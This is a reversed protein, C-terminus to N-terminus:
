YRIDFTQYNQVEGESVMVHSVKAFPPGQHCWQELADVQTAEGEAELYVSGDAQNRVFGKVGLRNAEEMTSYRYSVGQVVGFVEIKYHKM